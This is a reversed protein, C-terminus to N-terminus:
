KFSGLALRLLRSCALAFWLWSKALAGFGVLKQSIEKDLGDIQFGQSGSGPKWSKALARSGIM